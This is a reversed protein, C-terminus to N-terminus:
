REMDVMTGRWSQSLTCLVYWYGCHEAGLALAATVGHRIMM